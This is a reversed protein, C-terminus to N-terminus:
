REELHMVDSKELCGELKQVRSDMREQHADIKASKWKNQDIRRKKKAPM